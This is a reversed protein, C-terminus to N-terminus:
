IKNVFRMCEATLNQMHDLCDFHGVETAEVTKYLESLKM